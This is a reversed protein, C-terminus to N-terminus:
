KGIMTNAKNLMYIVVKMESLSRDFIEKNNHLDDFDEINIESVKLLTIKTSPSAKFLSTQNFKSVAAKIIDTPNFPDHTASILRNLQDLARAKQKTIGDFYKILKDVDQLTQIQIVLPDTTAIPDLFLTYIGPPEILPIKLDRKIINQLRYSYIINKKSDFFDQASYKSQSFCKIGNNYISKSHSKSSNDALRIKWNKQLRCNHLM